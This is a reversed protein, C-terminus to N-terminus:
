MNRRRHNKRIYLIAIEGATIPWLAMPCDHTITTTRIMKFYHRVIANFNNTIDNCTPTMTTVADIRYVFPDNTPLTYSVNIM